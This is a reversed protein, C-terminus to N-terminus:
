GTLLFMYCVGPLKCPATPCPSLAFADRTKGGRGPWRRTAHFERAGGFARGRIKSEAGDGTGRNVAILRPKVVTSGREPGRQVPLFQGDLSPWRRQNRRPPPIDMGYDVTIWRLGGYNQGEVGYNELWSVAISWLDGKDNVSSLGTAQKLEVPRESLFTLSCGVGRLCVLRAMAAEAVAPSGKGM